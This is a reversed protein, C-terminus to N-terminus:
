PLFSERVRLAEDFLERTGAAVPCRREAHDLVVLERGDADEMVGGAETVILLAAMYDWVGLNGWACDLYLDAAGEAVLCLDLAAAGFARYQRWGLPTPPSGNLLVFSAALETTASARIPVGDRTAGGGRTAEYRVGNAQNVVLAARVGDVDVAALSTAYWPIGRSANTSGDIPDVVVCVEREPHHHGSEESLVGLGVDLLVDVAAADTVIDLAYQGARDGKARYDDVSHRFAVAVADATAHLAAILEDDRMPRLSDACTDRVTGSTAPKTVKATM